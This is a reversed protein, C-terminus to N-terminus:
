EGVFFGHPSVIFSEGLPVFGRWGGDDVAVLVRLDGDKKGDWVAHTEVQYTAGSPGDVEITEPNGLYRDRLEAWSLRRLEAIRDRAVAAAEAKDM